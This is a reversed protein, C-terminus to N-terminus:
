AEDAQHDGRLKAVLVEMCNYLDTIADADPTGAKASMEVREALEALSRMSLMRASGKLTHALRIFDALQGSALHVAMAGPLSAHHSIFLSLMQELTDPRGGALKLAQAVDVGEIAALRQALPGMGGVDPGPATESFRVQGNLYRGLIEEMLVSDIPKALFGVMGAAKCAVQDEAFVNATMAVIPVHATAPQALITRAATIGDMLPMQIDMLVLDFAERACAEVAAQGNDALTFQVGLDSLMAEILAQNMPNDEAILVRGSLPTAARVVAEISRDREGGSQNHAPLALPISLWFESGMGMESTVGVDGGMMRALSRSIALGLGTGGFRRTISADAQSFPKFLMDMQASTMGLGTDRIAFRLSPQSGGKVVELKFQIRGADTFKAANSAFNGLIQQIRLRDAWVQAPVDDAVDMSVHIPKNGLRPGMLDRAYRLAAEPSCAEPCIELKGADLKSFDLIDDIVGLLHQGAVEIKDVYERLAPDGLKRRLIHSFGLVANLPTRIEHSMNALFASKAEVAAEAAQKAFILEHTRETVLDELHHRYSHLEVEARQQVGVDELEVAMKSFKGDGDTIPFQKYSIFAQAGNEDPWKLLGEWARGGFLAGYIADQMAEDLKGSLLGELSQDQWGDRDLDLLQCFAANADQVVGMADVLAFGFPSQELAQTMEQQAQEAALRETVDRGIGLFRTEGRVFYRAITIDMPFVSGDKRQGFVRKRRGMLRKTVDSSAFDRMYGDHVAHLDQPLLISLPAGDLEARTYGFMTLASDNVSEIRHQMDLTIIADPAADILQAYEKYASELAFMLEHQDTVDTFTTVVQTGQDDRLSYPRSNIKIWRSHGDPTQVNMMVHDVPKGTALAVMAPHEEGPFPAGDGKTSRWRPDTSTRGMMQDQTLGLISEAQRNCRVISGDQAQVVLGEGMAAFIAENQANLEDVEAMRRRMAHQIVQNRSFLYASALLLAVSIAISSFIFAWIPGSMGRFPVKVMVCFPSQGVQAVSALVPFLGSELVVVETKQGGLAKLLQMREALPIDLSHDAPYSYAAAGTQRDVLMVSMGQWMSLSQMMREIQEMRFLTGVMAQMSGDARRIPMGMALTRVGDIRSRIEGAFAVDLTPQHLLAQFHPRDAVNIAKHTAENSVLVNGAADFLWFAQVEQIQDATDKMVHEIAAGPVGGTQGPIGSVLVEGRVYKVGALARQISQEWTGSMVLVLNSLNQRGADQLRHRAALLGGIQVVGICLSLLVFWAIPPVAAARFKM